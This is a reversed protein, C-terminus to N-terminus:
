VIACGSRAICGGACCGNDQWPTQTFTCMQLDCLCHCIEESKCGCKKHQPPPKVKTM